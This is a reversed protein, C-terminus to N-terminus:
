TVRVIGTSSGGFAAEAGSSGSAGMMASKRVAIVVSLAIELSRTMRSPSLMAWSLMRYVSFRQPSIGILRSASTSLTERDLAVPSMSRM